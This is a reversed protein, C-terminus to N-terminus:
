KSSKEFIKAIGEIGLILNRDGEFFQHLSLAAVLPKVTKPSEFAGLSIRIIVLHVVIGLELVQAIVHHYVLKPSELEGSAFGSGHPHGHM